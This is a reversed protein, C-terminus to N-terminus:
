EDAEWGERLISQVERVKDIFAASELIARSRPRPLDIDVVRHVRGPRPTMVVVKDSLLVAEPASHTVFVVTKRNKEWVDLLRLRIAERTLEDLASFPEDMLMLPAGQVFGRAIAARQRMGGSLQAPRAHAFDALGLEALVKDPDEPIRKRDGAPMRDAARNVFQSLLINSRISLWPLLAASQPVWAVNKARAAQAPTEGFLSVTGATMEELGALIRLLTTKGCGSPGFLTVFTGEQFTLNVDVLARVVDDGRDFTKSVQDIVIAGTPAAAGLSTNM